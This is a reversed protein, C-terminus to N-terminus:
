SDRLFLTKKVSEENISYFTLFYVSFIWGSIGHLLIIPAM